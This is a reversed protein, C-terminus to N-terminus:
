SGHTTVAQFDPMHAPPKALCPLTLTVRTGQGPRSELILQGQHAEAISRCISLGLGTGETRRSRASDVRYLRDFIHSLHESSIGVGTDSVIVRAQDKLLDVSIKITGGAPTFKIANDLLNFLLRRLQETNGLVYCPRAAELVLEQNQEAAVVRMHEALERALEDLAIPERTQIGLGADERFLFLLAESLKSLHEIEELIEELSTRYAESDRPVRLAVEAENRLIALPTRLEHAADATFRRVEEFSRQLRAIMGNLTRALRGLEDNANPVQLRRDLRNATIEDAAAAMRDVPALAKRALIYGGGLTCAVALAGAALLIVILEGLERENESLSSAVQILLPTGGASVIRSAMRFHGIRPVTFEEFIVNGPNPTKRVAPLGRARIRDTRLLIGGDLTGIQVDYAPHKAYQREIRDHVLKLDSTERVQNEIVDLQIGLSRTTRHQLERRSLIYVGTGFVGLAIALVAGYWLTLKWRISLPVM